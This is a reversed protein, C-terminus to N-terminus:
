RSFESTSYIIFCNETNIRILNLSKLSYHVPGWLNHPSLLPTCLSPSTSGPTNGSPWLLSSSNLASEHSVLCELPSGHTPHGLCLACLGSQLYCSHQGCWSAFGLALSSGNLCGPGGKPFTQFSSASPLPTQSICSCTIMSFFNFIIFLILPVQM